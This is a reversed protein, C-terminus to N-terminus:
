NLINARTEKTIKDFLVNFVTVVIPIKTNKRKNKERGRSEERSQNSQPTAILYLCYFCLVVDGTM